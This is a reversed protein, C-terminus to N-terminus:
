EIKAGTGYAEIGYQNFEIQEQEASMVIWERMTIPGPIGDAKIGLYTQVYLITPIPPEPHSKGHRAAMGYGVFYMAIGVVMAMPYTKM